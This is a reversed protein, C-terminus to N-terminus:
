GILVKTLRQSLAYLLEGAVLCDVLWRPLLETRRQVVLAALEIIRRAIALQGISQGLNVTFVARCAIPEEIKGRRWFYEGDDELLEAGSPQVAWAAVTEYADDDFLRKSGVEFACALEIM